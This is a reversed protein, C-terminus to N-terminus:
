EAIGESFNNESVVSIVSNIRNVSYQYRIREQQRPKCQGYEYMINYM